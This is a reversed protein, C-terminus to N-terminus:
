RQLSWLSVDLRIRIEGRPNVGFYFLLFLRGSANDSFPVGFIRLLRWSSVWRSQLKLSIADWCPHRGRLNVACRWLVRGWCCRQAAGELFFSFKFAFSILLSSDGSSIASRIENIEVDVLTTQTLIM